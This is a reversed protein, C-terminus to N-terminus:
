REVKVIPLKTVTIGQSHENKRKERLLRLRLGFMNLTKHSHAKM